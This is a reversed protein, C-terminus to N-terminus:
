DQLYFASPLRHCRIVMSFNYVLKFAGMNTFETSILLHIHSRQEQTMKVESFCTLWIAQDLHSEAKYRGHASTWKYVLLELNTQEVERALSVATTNSNPLRKKSYWLLEINKRPILLNPAFIRSPHPATSFIPATLIVTTHASVKTIM